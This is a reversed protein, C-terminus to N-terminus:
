EFNYVMLHLRCWTAFSCITRVLSVICRKNHISFPQNFQNDARQMVLLLKINLIRLTPYM